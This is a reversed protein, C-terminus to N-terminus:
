PDRPALHDAIRQLEALIADLRALVAAEFTEAQVAGDTQDGHRRELEATIERPSLRRAALVAIEEIRELPYTQHGSENRQEPVWARYHHRWLRITSRARGLRDSLAAVTLWTFGDAM